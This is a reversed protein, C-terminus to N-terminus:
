LMQNELEKISEEISKISRLDDDDLECDRSLPDYFLEVELEYKLFLIQKKIPHTELEWKEELEVLKLDLKHLYPNTQKWIRDQIEYQESPLSTQFQQNNIKIGNIYKYRSGSIKSAVAKLEELSSVKKFPDNGM